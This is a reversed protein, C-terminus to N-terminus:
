ALRRITNLDDMRRQVDSIKVDSGSNPAEIMKGDGIYIGVHHVPSGFALVDGPRRFLCDAV